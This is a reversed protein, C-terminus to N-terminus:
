PLSRVKVYQTSIKLPIPGVNEVLHRLGHLVFIQHGPGVDEYVRAKDDAPYPTGPQQGPVGLMSFRAWGALITFIQIEDWHTDWPLTGNIPVAVVETKIHGTPDSYIVSPSPARSDVHDVYDVQNPEPYHYHPCRHTMHRGVSLSGMTATLPVMEQAPKQKGKGRFLARQKVLHAFGRKPVLKGRYNRTMYPPPDQVTMDDLTTQIHLYILQENIIGVDDGHCRQTIDLASTRMEVWRNALRWSLWAPSEFVPRFTLNNYYDVLGVMVTNNEYQGCAELTIQDSPQLIARDFLVHLTKCLLTKGMGKFFAREKDNWLDSLFVIHPQDKEAEYTKDSPMKNRKTDYVVTRAMNYFYKLHMNSRVTAFGEVTLASVTYQLKPLRQLHIQFLSHRFNPYRAVINEWAQQFRTQEGNRGFHRAYDPGMSVFVETEDNRGIRLLVNLVRLSEEEQQQQQPRKQPDFADDSTEEDRGRKGEISVVGCVAKHNHYKWDITSCEVSCYATDCKGCMGLSPSGCLTCQDRCAMQLPSPLGAWTKRQPRLPKLLGARIQCQPNAEHCIHMADGLASSRYVSRELSGCVMCGISREAVVDFDVKADLGFAGQFVEEGIATTMTQVQLTMTPGLVIVQGRILASVDRLYRQLALQIVPLLQDLEQQDGYFRFVIRTPEPLDTYTALFIERTDGPAVSLAKLVVNPAQITHITDQETPEYAGCIRVFVRRDPKSPSPFTTIQIVARQLMLEERKPDVYEQYLTPHVRICFNTTEIRETDDRFGGISYIENSFIDNRHLTGAYLGQTNKSLARREEENERRATDNQAEEREDRKRKYQQLRQRQKDLYARAAVQPRADDEAVIGEKQLLLLAARYHAANGREFMAELKDGDMKALDSDLDLLANVIEDVQEESLTTLERVVYMAALMTPSASAM